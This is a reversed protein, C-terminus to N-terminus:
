AMVWIGAYSAPRLLVALTVIAVLVMHIHVALVLQDATVVDAVRGQVIALRHIVQEHLAVGARVDPGIRGVTGFLHLGLQAGSPQSAADMALALAALWQGFLALAAVPGFGDHARPDLMDEAGLGVVHAPRQHAGDSQDARLGLDSHLVEGVVHSPQRM